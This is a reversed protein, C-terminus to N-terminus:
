DKLHFHLLYIVKVMIIPYFIWRKCKVHICYLINKHLCFNIHAINIIHVLKDFPLSRIYKDKIPLEVVFM